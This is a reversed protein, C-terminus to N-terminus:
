EEIIIELVLRADGNDFCYHMGQKNYSIGVGMERLENLYRYFTSPSVSLKEAYEEPTGKWRIRVLHLLREIFEKQEFLKM